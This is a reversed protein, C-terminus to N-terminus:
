GIAKAEGRWCQVEGVYLYLLGLCLSINASHFVYRSYSESTNSTAVERAFRVHCNRFHLESINRSVHNM